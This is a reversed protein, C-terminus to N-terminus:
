TLFRLMYVRLALNLAAPNNGERESGREVIRVQRNTADSWTEKDVSCKFEVTHQIPEKRSDEKKRERRKGNRWREMGGDVRSISLSLFFM